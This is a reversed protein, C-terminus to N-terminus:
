APSGALGPLLGSCALQNLYGPLLAAVPPCRWGADTGTHGLLEELGVLEALGLFPEMQSKGDAAAAAARALWDGPSVLEVPYGASRLEGFVDLWAMPAPNTMDIADPAPGAAVGDIIASAVADVPVVDLAGSLEPAVGLRACEAIFSWLLQAAPLPARGQSSGGIFGPRYIAVPLGLDAAGALLLEAARKTENYGGGPVGGGVAVASLTSVQHFASCPAQGALTILSRVGAVNAGALWEYPLVFNVWGGANVIADARALAAHEADSVGLRPQDLHGAVLHLRHHQAIRHDYGYRALADSLRRGAAAQDSGRILAYVTLDRRLAAVLIHLGVFGTAGTLLVSRPPPRALGPAIVFDAAGSRPEAPDPGAREPMAGPRPAGLWAALRRATPNGLVATIDVRRGIARGLRWALRAAQVSHGGLDFFDADPGCTDVGLVAAFTRAVTAELVSGPPSAALEERGTALRRVAKRDVKGSRTLPLRPVRRWRTPIAPGPLRAALFEHLSRSDIALDGTTVLVAALLRDGSEADAIAVAADAIQPHERLRAEVEAPEIRVGRLKIQSDLRGHCSLVGDTV